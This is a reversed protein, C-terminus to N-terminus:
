SFTMILLNGRTWCNIQVPAFSTSTLTVTMMMIVIIIVTIFTLIVNGSRRGHRWARNRNPPSAVAHSSLENYIVKNGCCIRNNTWMCLFLWLTTQPQPPLATPPPAPVSRSSDVIDPLKLTMGMLTSSCYCPAIVPQHPSRPWLDDHRNSLQITEYTDEVDSRQGWHVHLVHVFASCQRRSVSM